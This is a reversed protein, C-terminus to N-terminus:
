KVAIEVGEVEQGDGISSAQLTLAGTGDDDQVVELGTEGDDNGSTSVNSGIVTVDGGDEEEFVIGVGGNDSAAVNFMVGTVGGEGEESNKYADDTNGVATTGILTLHIDGADEEDFDLGEDFNNSIAAGIVTAKISGPGAEDVDFGDDVDIAFEYEEVSGDDYTGVEREFCMDDPSGSIPGPIADEMMQGQEFEGEDQEPMFAALIAPDCYDGNADFRGGSVRVIVDGAQGEDLEVGDAGVGTFVSNTSVFVIDGESREDVRLGDADFKGQGVTEITSNAMRVHISAPSGEGAGGSGGGCDDALSCDSVHVGHNSVGRVTVNDLELMVVGTQDDRVDIFLGKGSVGDLDGRANISYNGPGEFTLNGIHLSGGNTSSLLTVDETTRITQGAGLLSLTGVGDYKLGESIQIPGDTLVVIQSDGDALSAADLAARLSGTGADEASTVTFVTESLVPGAACAMTLALASVRLSNM